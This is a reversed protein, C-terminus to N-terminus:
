LDKNEGNFVFMKKVRVQSTTVIRFQKGKM